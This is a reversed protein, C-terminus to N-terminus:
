KLQQPLFYEDPLFEGVFIDYGKISDVKNTTEVEGKGGRPGLVLVNSGM